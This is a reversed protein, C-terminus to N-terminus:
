ASGREIMRAVRLVESVSWAQAICGVARHPPDGEHIEHLQGLGDGMLYALLPAIAAHAQKVAADSFNGVRMVAEAYPGILWPWVTGQHYAGDRAFMDGTYRGRYKPDDEALTRLGYPTLLADRVAKVVQKQRTKALPSHPLSVAFIQNPRVSLDPSDDGGDTSWVFDRLCEADQDWFVRTFSRKIRKALKEYHAGAKSDRSTMLKATGVLASYWLANIEVAKGPRPTFVVGGCAADMWTLQTADSGATILGDGTMRIDYDTGRIYADLVLMVAASLWEEWTADDGTVRVYELASHVFWLSGDVTNYHAAADDYDDFRNPVLGDRIAGAFLRLASRAEDYRGTELLLGPLAIFTDRGWDAFWPYGALITSLSQGKFKRDVVFDDAAVVLSRMAPDSRKAGKAGGVHKLLGNLHKAREDHQSADAEAPKDGLAISLTVVSEELAPDIPVEFMGPVYLDEHDGQGREADLVYQVGYWWGDDQSKQKVFKGASCAMTVAQEGRRVTVAKGSTSVAFGEQGQRYALSHFDRLTLMPGLRLVGTAGANSLGRVTYRLTAEQRKWHLFLERTVLIKGWGYEWRVSLGKEFRRLMTHGAPSWVRGGADGEFGCTTFELPRPTGNLTLDLRDLVQNLAVVRGVPPHSAAVLLGHYRRTNVGAATGMSFSGAGNTLLWECDVLALGLGDGPVELEHTCWDVNM